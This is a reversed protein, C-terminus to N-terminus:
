AEYSAAYSEAIAMVVAHIPGATIEPIVSSDVISLNDLGRMSLNADVIAEADAGMRCTAVPHHHTIVANAVFADLAADSELDAPTPQVEEAVWESMAESQGVMRARKVAVRFLDRDRETELYNPNIVPPDSVNPGTIYLEGRSTPNTVGFLLTFGEGLEPATLMESASPACVCGVVIDPRGTTQAPDEAQYSLSESIQLKSPGVHQKARYINGAGLLHDHLNKGIERRELVCEVGAAKLIEPDGIGSRMLTLPSGIAGLSLVVHDGSYREIEGSREVEAAAVRSGDLVLRHVLGNKVITLNPRALVDETLWADAVSVRKGDRIMLANPATGILEEGCHDHLRPMGLEEWGKIYASVLPHTQDTPLMIPMPGSGGHLEDEGSSWSETAKFHPLLGDFSWRDDGTLEAWRAFDEKHGRVHFMAHLNSSGGLVKGRAWRHSRGATGPQPTTEFDWDFERGQIFPWMDPKAIDPDTAESGAEILTVNRSPDESLRAALICGASGGGLILVDTERPM